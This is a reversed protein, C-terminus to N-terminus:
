QTHTHKHTHTHTHTHTYTHTCARFIIDEAEVELIHLVSITFHLSAVLLTSLLQFSRVYQVCASVCALVYLMCVCLTVSLYMIFLCIYWCCVHVYIMCYVRRVKIPRAAKHPGLGAVFQVCALLHPHEIALNLDISVDNIRTIFETQIAAYLNEKPIANQFLM